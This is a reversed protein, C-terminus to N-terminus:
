VAERWEAGKPLRRIRWLEGMVEDQTMGHRAAQVALLDCRLPRHGDHHDQHCTACLPLLNELVDLRGGSGAGRCLLHHPQVPGRKGCWACRFEDRIQQLLAEDVIRM